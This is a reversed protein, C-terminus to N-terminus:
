DTLKLEKLQEIWVEDFIEQINPAYEILSEKIKEGLSEGLKEFNKYEDDQTETNFENKFKEIEAPITELKKLAGEIQEDNLVETLKLALKMFFLDLFMESSKQVLKSLNTKTDM